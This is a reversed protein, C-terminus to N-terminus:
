CSFVNLGHFVNFMCNVSEIQAWFFVIFLLRIAPFFCSSGVFWLLDRVFLSVDSSVSTLGQNLVETSSLSYSVIGPDAVVVQIASLWELACALRVTSHPNSHQFAFILFSDVSLALSLLM